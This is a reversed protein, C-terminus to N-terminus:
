HKLRLLLHLAIMSRDLHAQFADNGRRSLHDDGFDLKIRKIAREVSTRNRMLAKFRRSMPPDAPDIHPLYIIPIEVERGGKTDSRCCGDRLPCTLCAVEGTSLRPSEYIFKETEFRAGKFPMERDAKCTLTGIPTLSKMGRGLDTTITKIARPNTFTKLDMGFEDRVTQKSAADDMATDALVSDFRGKLEPYTAFVSRLQPVLATGDHSAADTMAVADLPIGAPATCLVAAKHAWYKRKGGVRGGKVVTGAGPDSLVWPHKCTEPDDCRCNKITRSQSKRKSKEDKRPATPRPADPALAGQERASETPVNGKKAGRRKAKKAEYREKFGLRCAARAARHAGRRASKPMRAAKTREAAVAEKEPLAEKAPPSQPQPTEIVDMASYAVYHTTDQALDQGKLEVVGQNLNDRITQVRLGAWLGRDAMIQEFQELKRLSPIDSQRYGKDPQPQTFGCARAFPPSIELHHRVEAATASRGMSQVGIFAKLLAFFCKPAKGAMRIPIVGPRLREAHVTPTSLPPLATPHLVTADGNGGTPRENMLRLTAQEQTEQSEEGDAGGRAEETLPLTSQVGGDADPVEPVGAMARERAARANFEWLGQYYQAAQPRYALWDLELVVRLWDVEGVALLAADDRHVEVFLVAQPGFPSQLLLPDVPVSSVDSMAEHQQM